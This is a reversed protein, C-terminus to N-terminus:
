HAVVAPGSTKAAADQLLERMGRVVDPHAVVNLHDAGDIEMLKASPSSEAFAVSLPHLPDGTGVAVLSPVDATRLGAIALEPLSRMVAILSPLDNGKMVGDNFNAAVAPEMRPFLWRMFSTLGKGSELDAVWPAVEKRFTAKDAYFPAAILAASVVRTPHQAAVNAAILAGMSHGILHARPIKLHDLLRVVDHVLTPGFKATDAFKSSKGFGRVDFAIVHHSAALADALPMQSELAATYGHILVVPTGTGLERYRLTVDKDTFLQDPAAAFKGVAPQSGGGAAVLRSDPMTAFGATVTVVLTLCLVRIRM